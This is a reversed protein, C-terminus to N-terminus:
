EFHIDEEILKIALIVQDAPVQVELFGFGYPSDKKNILVADFDRDLLVDRVITARHERSDKYV